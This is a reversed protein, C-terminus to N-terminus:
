GHAIYTLYLMYSNNYGAFPRVWHNKVKEECNGMECSGIQNNGRRWAILKPVKNDVGYCITVVGRLVTPARLSVKQANYM